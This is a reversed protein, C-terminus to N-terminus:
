QAGYLRKWEEPADKFGILFVYGTERIAVLEVFQDVEQIRLVGAAAGAGIQKGLTITNAHFSIDKEPNSIHPLQITVDKESVDLIQASKWDINYGELLRKAYPFVQNSYNLEYIVYGLPYRELIREPRFKDQDKLLDTIAEIKKQQDAFQQEQAASQQDHLLKKSYSSYTWYAFGAFILLSVVVIIQTIQKHLPHKRFQHAARAAVLGIALLYLVLALIYRGESMAGYSFQGTLGILAGVAAWSWLSGWFVIFANKYEDVKAFLAPMTPPEPSEPPEQSDPM